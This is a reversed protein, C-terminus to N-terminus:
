YLILEYYLCDCEMFKERKFPVMFQVREITLLKKKEKGELERKNEFRCPGFFLGCDFEVGGISGSFSFLFFFFFFFFVYWDRPDFRLGGVWFNDM